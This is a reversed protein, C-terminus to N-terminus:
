GVRCTHATCLQRLFYFGDADAGDTMVFGTVYHCRTNGPASLLMKVGATGANLHSVPWRNSAGPNVEHGTKDMVRVQDAAYLTAAVLTVVVLIILKKM